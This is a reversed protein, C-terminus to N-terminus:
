HPRGRVKQLGQVLDAADLKLAKALRAINELSPNREGSELSGIYTRHLGATHALTEQTIGLEIRRERVRRGFQRQRPTVGKDTGGM